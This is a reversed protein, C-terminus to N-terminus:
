DLESAPDVVLRRARRRASRERRQLLRDLAQALERAGAVRAAGARLVLDLVRGLAHVARPGVASDARGPRSLCDLSPGPTHGEAAASALASVAANQRPPKCRAAPALTVLTVISPIFNRRM